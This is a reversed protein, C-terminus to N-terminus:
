DILDQYIAEKNGFHHYLNGLSVGAKESIQRMSTAGYGQTSFLELAAERARAMAAESRIAQRGNSPM